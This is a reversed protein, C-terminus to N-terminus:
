YGVCPFFSIVACSNGYTRIKRFSGKRCILGHQKHTMLLAHLDGGNSGVSSGRTVSIGVLGQWKYWVRGGQCPAPYYTPRRWSSLPCFSWPSKLGKCKSVVSRLLDWVVLRSHYWPDTLPCWSSLGFTVPSFRLCSYCAVVVDFVNPLFESGLLVENKKIGSCVCEYKMQVKKRVPFLINYISHLTRLYVVSISLHFESSIFPMIQLWYSIKRQTSSDEEHLMWNFCAIYNNTWLQEESVVIIILWSLRSFQSQCDWSLDGFEARSKFTRLRFVDNVHEITTSDPVYRAYFPRASIM